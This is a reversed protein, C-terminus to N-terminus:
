GAPRHRNVLDLLGSGGGPHIAAGFRPRARGEEDLRRQFLGGHRGGLCGSEGGWAWADSFLDARETWRGAAPRAAIGPASIKVKAATRDDPARVALMVPGHGVRRERRAPEGLRQAAVHKGCVVFGSRFNNARTL